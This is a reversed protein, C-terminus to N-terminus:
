MGLEDLFETFREMLMEADGPQAEYYIQKISGSCDWNKMNWWIFLELKNQIVFMNTGAPVLLDLIGSRLSVVLPIKEAIGLMEELPCRLALSGKVPKQDNIVNTYVVYGRSNLFDCAQEFFEEGAAGLVISSSYPNLVVIRPYTSEFDPISRVPTPKLGHYQLPADENLGFLRRKSTIYDTQTEVVDDTLAMISFPDIIIGDDFLERAHAFDVM